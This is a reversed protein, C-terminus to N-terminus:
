SAMVLRLCCLLRCRQLLNEQVGVFCRDCDAVELPVVHDLALEPVFLDVPRLELPDISHLHADCHSLVFLLHVTGLMVGM